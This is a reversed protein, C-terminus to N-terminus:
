NGKHPRYSCDTNQSQYFELATVDKSWYTNWIGNRFRSDTCTQDSLQFDLVLVGNCHILLRIGSSGDKTIKWMNEAATPLTTQLDAWYSCMYIFYMPTSSVTIAVGGAPQYGIQSYRYFRVNLEEDAHASNNNTKIELPVKELDYYVNTRFSTPNWGAHWPTISVFWIIHKVHSWLLVAFM